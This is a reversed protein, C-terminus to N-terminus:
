FRSRKQWTLLARFIPGCIIEGSKTSSASSLGRGRVDLVYTDLHRGFREGVFGWTIAPSTIGPVIVVAARRTTEVTAGGYRLYHQRIGNAAVNGGHVFTSM